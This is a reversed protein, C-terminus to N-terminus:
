SSAFAHANLSATTYVSPKTWSRTFGVTELAATTNVSPKTWSSATKCENLYAKAYPTPKKWASAYASENLLATTNVSPKTWSSALGVGTLNAEAETKVPNKRSEEEMAAKTQEYFTGVPPDLDPILDIQWTLIYDELGPFLESGEFNGAFTDVMTNWTDFVENLTDILFQGLGRLANDSIWAKILEWKEQIGTLFDDFSGDVLPKIFSDYLMITSGFTPLTYLIAQEMSELIQVGLQWGPNDEGVGLVNALGDRFPQKINEDIWDEIKGPVALVDFAFSLTVTWVNGDYEGMRRDFEEKLDEWAGKIFGVGIGIHAGTINGALRSVEEALGAWDVSNLAKKMGEYLDNGIQLWDQEEFWSSLASIFGEGFTGSLEYAESQLASSTDGLSSAIGSGSSGGSGGSSAQDTLKTIQDFGALSRKIQQATGSVADGVGSVGSAADGASSTLDDLGDAVAGSGAAMDESTKGMLSFVFAKFTNAAKVLATMFRNLAQISPTLAAILTQGIVSCLSEFQLKLLRVQNAWSDSTRAFDGSATSLQSMVFQYRLAVKEQETMASTTRGFGNQLAYQDLATQTMVIGLDKLTETEGSFVSKLKTYAAEQDINYFSAVDGALGTLTTSMDYAENESFGFAKAMAGFTGTFRKAMTESLGFNAAADQAFRNVSENMSSFTVDVVNQVEALDSGLEICKKSFATIAAVSLAATLKRGLNAGLGGFSNLLKGKMSTMQSQIPKSNLHIGLHIRGAEKDM